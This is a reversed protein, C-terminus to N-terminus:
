KRLMRVNDSNTKTQVSNLEVNKANKIISDNNTKIDKINEEILESIKIVVVSVDRITSTNRDIGVICGDTVKNNTALDEQLKSVQEEAEIVKTSVVEISGLTDKNKGANVKIDIENTSIANVNELISVRNEAIMFFQNKLEIRNTEVGSLIDSIKSDLKKVEVRLKNIKSDLDLDKQTKIRISNLKIVESNNELKEALEDIGLSGIQDKILVIEEKLENVILTLTNIGNLNTRVEPDM